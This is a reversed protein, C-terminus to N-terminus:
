HCLFPSFTPTKDVASIPTEVISFLIVLGQQLAIIGEVLRGILVQLIFQLIAARSM